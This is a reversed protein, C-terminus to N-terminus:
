ALKPEGNKILTQYFRRATSIIHEPIYAHHIESVAKGDKTWKDVFETLASIFNNADEEEEPFLLVGVLSNAGRRIDYDDFLFGILDIAGMIRVDSDGQNWNEIDKVYELLEFRASPVQSLELWRPPYVYEM